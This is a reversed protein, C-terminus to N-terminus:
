PVRLFSKRGAMLSISQDTPCIRSARFFFPISSFVTTMKVESLPGAIPFAAGSLPLFPLVNSPPMRSGVTMRQGPFIGAPTTFSSSMVAM